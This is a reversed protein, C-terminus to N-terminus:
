QCTPVFLENNTPTKRTCQPINPLMNPNQGSSGCLMNGGQSTTDLWFHSWVNGFTVQLEHIFKMTRRKNRGDEEKNIRPLVNIDSLGRRWPMGSITSYVLICKDMASHKSLNYAQQLVKVSHAVSVM